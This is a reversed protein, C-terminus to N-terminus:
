EPAYGDFWAGCRRTRARGAASTCTRSSTEHSACHAQAQELTLGKKITRTRDSRFYFRIIKFTVDGEPLPDGPRYMM